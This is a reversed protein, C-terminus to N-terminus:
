KVLLMKKLLQKGGFQLRAFYIGSAFRSANFVAKQYVGAKMQGDVLTAVERGSIDYVKLVARGDSPITFEVTTTPNFPNPYNQSLTFVRPAMGVEVAMEASYAFAGSRDIQKLRYAYMGPSASNDTFSYSRPDTSTGAGEVYGVKTWQQNGIHSQPDSNLATQGESINKRQVEFGACDVESATTWTIVANSSSAKVQLATMQVPLSNDSGSGISFQSFTSIATQTFTHNTTNQTFSSTVDVWPSDPEERELVKLSTENQIGGLGSYDLTITAINSGVGFIGWVVASRKEVGSPFSETTVAADGSSGCSYLGLFNLSDVPSSTISVSMNASTAGASDSSASADYSGYLGVPAYSTIWDPTGSLTANFESVSDAATTGTGENFQWYSVLGDQAGTLTTFMDQRIEQSTRPVSWIRVEDIDGRWQRSGIQANEGILVDYTNTGLTGTVSASGDVRGDVFLYKMGTSADYVAAVYHWKGDNVDTTGALDVNSLGTTGFGMFNTGNNRHLRWANDGKTVVAQWNPTFQDVKIWAEVTLGGTLNFASSHGANLYSSGNFHLATGGSSSYQPISTASTAEAPSTTLYGPLSLLSNAEFIEVTYENGAPLGTVTVSNGNDAYVVYANTGIATGAGFTTSATYTTGTSPVNTGDVSSGQRLLVLRGTGNGSTWTITMSSSTISSFAANSAQVTPPTSGSSNQSNYKALAFGLNSSGDSSFGAAVITSDSEVAIANAEDNTGAGDAITTRLLGSTGFTDDYSGDSNLRMLAFATANSSNTSYGAAVIKGDNQITIAKGIENGGGSFNTSVIGSTGFGSDFSGLTDFRIVQFQTGTSTYGATVIKQNSDLVLASILTGNTLRETGNTAFTNDLAGTSSLRALALAQTSGNLSAGGVVIKGDTRVAVAFAEDITGDGGNITFTVHGSTGFTNDAFGNSNFRAVACSINTNSAQSYGAVVIKGNSQVAVAFARDGMGSADIQSTETGGSAFNDDLTGDTDVRAIAFAYHGSSLLSRGVLVFKGDSQRAIALCRDQTGAGGSIAFTVFGDLNAGFTPDATGDTGFRAIAFLYHSSADESTGAVVIKGDPQLVEGYIADFAGNSGPVANRVTGGNGFSGNLILTQASSYEPYVSLTATLFLIAKCMMNSKSM